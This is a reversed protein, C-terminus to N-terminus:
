KGMFKKAIELYVQLFEYKLFNNHIWFFLGFITTKNCIELELIFFKQLRVGNQSIM